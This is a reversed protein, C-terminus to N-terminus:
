VTRNQRGFMGITDERVVPIMEIIRHLNYYFYAVIYSYLVIWLSINYTNKHSHIKRM